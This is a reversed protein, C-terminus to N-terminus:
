GSDHERSQEQQDEMTLGHVLGEQALDEVIGKWDEPLDVKQEKNGM